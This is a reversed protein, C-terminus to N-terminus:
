VEAVGFFLFNYFGAFSAVNCKGRIHMIEKPLL